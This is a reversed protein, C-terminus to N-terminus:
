RLPLHIQQGALGHLPIVMRKKCSEAQFPLLFPAQQGHAVGIPQFWKFYTHALFGM